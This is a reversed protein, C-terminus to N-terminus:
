HSMSSSVVASMTGPQSEREWMRMMVATSSAYWTRNRAASIMRMASTIKQTLERDTWPPQCSVVQGVPGFRVPLGAVPQGVQVRTVDRESLDTTEIKYSSLDGLVIVPMIFLAKRIGFATLLRAVILSQLLASVLNVIGYYNSYFGSIYADQATLNFTPGTIGPAAAYATTALALAVVIVIPVLRMTAITKKM